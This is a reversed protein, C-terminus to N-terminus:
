LMVAQPAVSEFQPGGLFADKVILSYILNCIKAM